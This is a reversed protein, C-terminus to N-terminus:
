GISRIFRYYRHLVKRLLRYLRGILQIPQKLYIPLNPYNLRIYGEPWAIAQTANQTPLQPILFTGRNLGSNYRTRSLAQLTYIENPAELFPLLVKILKSSSPAPLQLSHQMGEVLENYERETVGAHKAYIPCGEKYGITQGHKSPFIQEVAYRYNYLRNFDHKFYGFMAPKDPKCCLYYGYLAIHLGAAALTKQLMKQISGNWGVDILVVNKAKPSVVKNWYQIFDKLNQNRYESLKQTVDADSFISKLAAKLKLPSLKIDFEYRKQYTSPLNNAKWGLIRLSETLSNSSQEMLFQYFEPHEPTFLCRFLVLRSVELQQIPLDLKQAAARLCDGERSVALFADPKHQDGIVHAWRLFSSAIPGSLNLGLKHFPQELGHQLRCARLSWGYEGFASEIANLHFQVKLVSQIGFAEARLFDAQRNDGYHITDSPFENKLHAFLTGMRKSKNIECSVICRDGEIYFGHQELLNRIFETPLYMDSIFWIKCGAARQQQIQELTTKIPITLEKETELETAILAEKTYGNLTPYIGLFVEYIDDITSETKRAHSTTSATIRTQAFGHLGTRAEIIRFVEEPAVTRSLCTDYVDYSRVLEM